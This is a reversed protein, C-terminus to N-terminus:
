AKTPINYGHRNAYYVRMVTDAGPLADPCKRSARSYGIITDADPNHLMEASKVHVWAGPSRPSLKAKTM